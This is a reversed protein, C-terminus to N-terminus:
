FLDEITLNRLALERVTNMMSKTLQNIKQVNKRMNEIGQQDELGYGLIGVYHQIKNARELAVEEEAWSVEQLSKVWKPYLLDLKISFEEHREVWKIFEYSIDSLEDYDDSLEARLNMRDMDADVFDLKDLRKLMRQTNEEARQLIVILSMLMQALKKKPSTKLKRLQDMSAFLLDAIMKLVSIEM